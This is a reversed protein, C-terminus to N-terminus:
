DWVFRCNAINRTSIARLSPVISLLKVVVKFDGLHYTIFEGQEYRHIEERSARDSPESPKSVCTAGSSLFPLPELRISEIFRCSAWPHCEAQSVHCRFSSVAFGEGSERKRWRRLGRAMVVQSCGSCSICRALFGRRGCVLMREWTLM